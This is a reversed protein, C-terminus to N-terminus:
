LIEKKTAEEPNEVEKEGPLNKQTEVGVHPTLVGCLADHVGKRCVIM